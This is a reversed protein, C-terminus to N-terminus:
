KCTSKQLDLLCDIINEDFMKVNNANKIFTNYLLNFLPTNKDYLKLNENKFIIKTDYTENNFFSTYLLYFVLFVESKFKHFSKNFFEKEFRCHFYNAQIGFDIIVINNHKILYNYKDVNITFPTKNTRIMINNFNNGCYLDNHFINLKHNIYFVTICLQITYDLWDKYLLKKNNITLPNIILPNIIKNDIIKSNFVKDNIKDDSINTNLNFFTKDFTNDYFDYVYIKNYKCDLIQKAISIMKDFKDNIIKKSYQKQFQYEHLKYKAIPESKIVINQEKIIHIQKKEPNKIEQCTIM